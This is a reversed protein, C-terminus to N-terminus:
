ITGAFSFTPNQVSTFVALLAGTTPHVLYDVTFTDVNIRQALLATMFQVCIAGNGDADVFNFKYVGADTKTYTYNITGVYQTTNQPMNVKLVMKKTVNNFQFQMQELRLNYGGTLMATAATARRSVYDAGWGPYTTGNPLTVNGYSTGILLHLPTVSNVSSLIIYEKGTTDYLALTNADKWAFKTFIIGEYTLGSNLIVAGDLTLAMKQNGSGITKGDALVGTLGARKGAALNNTLNVNVGTKLTTTGSVIEIYPYKVTTFFAKFKDIATKYGNAEYIAKQAATAKVLKFAQRYKKGIFLISDGVIKDFTFDVDSQYGIKDQGGLVASNPDNLMALYSYSDFVLDTGIDQKVRYYSTAFTTASADNLDGYMKVNQQNDFSLYFAYGGGARTPLTAIWGNTAGTLTTSVLSIQDAAREQPTKDFKAVYSTKKCAMLTSLIAIFFIIKKM